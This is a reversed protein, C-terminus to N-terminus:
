QKQRSQEEVIRSAQLNESNQPELGELLLILVRASNGCSEGRAARKGQAGLEPRVARGQQSKHVSGHPPVLRHGETRWASGAPSPCTGTHQLFYAHCRRHSHLAPRALYSALPLSTSPSSSPEAESAVYLGM